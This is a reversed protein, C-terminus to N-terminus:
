ASLRDAVAEPHSCFQLLKWYIWLSVLFRRVLLCAVSKTHSYQLRRKFFRVWAKSCPMGARGHIAGVGSSSSSSCSCCCLFCGGPSTNKGYKERMKLGSKGSANLVGIKAAKLFVNQVYSEDRFLVSALQRVGPLCCWGKLSSFM